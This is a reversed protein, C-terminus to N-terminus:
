GLPLLQVVLDLHFRAMRMLGYNQQFDQLVAHQFIYIVMIHHKTILGVVLVLVQVPLVQMGLIFHLDM